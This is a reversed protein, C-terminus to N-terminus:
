LIIIKRTTDLAIESLVDPSDDNENTGAISYNTTDDYFITWRVNWDIPFVIVNMVTSSNNLIKSEKNAHQWYDKFKTKYNKLIRTLREVNRKFARGGANSEIRCHNVKNAALRQALEPESIENRDRTYYVDLIYALNNIKAYTISCLYDKGKDAVDTYNYILTPEKPLKDYTKFEGYLMGELKKKKSHYNAWFIVSTIPDKLMRSKLKLYNEKNMFDECLMTDTSEDYIQMELIYWEEPEDRELIGQPDDKNWLTACFIEKIAGGESANRSSFTGAFWIWIKHLASKNMAVQADKVLDDIIRLTAGKGTVAGGVGVGLYSFHQGELAWKYYSANGQKIKCDPFIDSFVIQEPLNKVEQIGDRTYRAMDGAPDDGYSGTIIREEHNLGLSWQTFNVLTRTKGFQPPLRLMLKSYPENNVKLLRNYHFDNLTNCLEKLHPRSERYFDPDKLKCYEWFNRRAKEKKIDLLTIKTM